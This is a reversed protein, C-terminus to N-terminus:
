TLLNHQLCELPFLCQKSNEGAMTEYAFPDFLIDNTLKDRKEEWQKQLTVTFKGIFVFTTYKTSVQAITQLVSPTKSQKLGLAPFYRNAHTKALSRLTADTIYLCSCRTLKVYDHIINRLVQKPYSDPLDGIFFGVDYGGSPRSSQGLVFASASTFQQILKRLYFKEVVRQELYCKGEIRPIGFDHSFTLSDVVMKDFFESPIYEQDKLLYFKSPTHHELFDPHKLDNLDNLWQIEVEYFQEYFRLTSEDQTNADQIYLVVYTNKNQQIAQITSQFPKTNTIAAYYHINPVVYLLRDNAKLLEWVVETMVLNAM